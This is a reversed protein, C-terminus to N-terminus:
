PVKSLSDATLPRGTVARAWVEAQITLALLLDQRAGGDGWRSAPIALAAPEVLGLEALASSEGLLVGVLRRHYRAARDDGASYGGKTRRALCVDPVIGRMSRSLLPRPEFPSVRQEARCALVAELVQRDAYPYGIRLGAALAAGAQLRNLRATARVSAVATHQHVRAHQPEDCGAATAAASDLLERGHGTLWPPLVPRAEWGAGIGRRPALCHAVWRRYPGPHTAQAKVDIDAAGWLAAWGALHERATRRDRGRVYYLYPLAAIVVEDGGKGSLLVGPGAGTVVKWWALSRRPSLGTPGPADVALAQGLGELPEPIAGSAIVTHRAGFQEAAALRAWM